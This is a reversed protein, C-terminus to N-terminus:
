WSRGVRDRIPPSASADRLQSRGSDPTTMTNGSPGPSREVTATYTTSLQLEANPTLTAKRTAGDYTVASAVLTNGPGRLEFSISAPDM